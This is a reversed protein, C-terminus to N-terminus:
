AAVEGHSRIINALQPRSVGLVLLTRILLDVSVSPDDAEMKAVRSQSSGLRRALQQQTLQAQHRHKRVADSLSLKLDLYASEEPSLQLFEDASGMKWGSTRLQEAKKRKM